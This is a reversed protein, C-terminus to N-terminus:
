DRAEKKYNPLIYDRSPHNSFIGNYRSDMDSNGLANKDGNSLITLLLGIYMVTYMMTFEVYSVYLMYLVWSIFNIIIFGFSIRQLLIILKTTRPIKSLSYIILLDNLAAGTYYYLMHAAPILSGIMNFIVTLFCLILVALRNRENLIFLSATASCIILWTNM